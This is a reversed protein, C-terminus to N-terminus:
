LESALAKHIELMKGVKNVENHGKRNTVVASTKEAFPHMLISLSLKLLPQFAFLQELGFHVPLATDEDRRDVAGGTSTASALSEREGGDKWKGCRQFVM